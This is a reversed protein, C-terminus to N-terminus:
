GAAVRRASKLSKYGPKRVFVQDRRALPRKPIEKAVLIRLVKAARNAATRDDHESVIARDFHPEGSAEGNWRARVVHWLDSTIAPTSQRNLTEQIM